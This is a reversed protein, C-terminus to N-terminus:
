SFCYKGIDDDHDDDVVIRSYREIKRRFRWDLAAAKKETAASAGKMDHGVSRGVM